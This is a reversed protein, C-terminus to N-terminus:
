LSIVYREDNSVCFISVANIATGILMIVLFYPQSARLIRHNRHYIVWILSCFACFITISMLTLGVIRLSPSLYNQEPVDRLLLPPNLSGDSYVFSPGYQTFHIKGDGNTEINSGFLHPGSLGQITETLVFAEEFSLDIPNTTQNSPPYLNYIGMTSSDPSRTQTQTGNSKMDGYEVTGTAGTFSIKRINELHDQGSIMMGDLTIADPVDQLNRRRRNEADYAHCAGLGISIIADYLFAAGEEPTFEQFFYSPAPPDTLGNYDPSLQTNHQYMQNLQKVFTEDNSKWAQLFPDDDGLVQYGEVPQILAAGRLLKTVNGYSGFGQQKLMEDPFQILNYIVSMDFTAQFIWLYDGNLMNEAEAADALLPLEVPFAEMSVVITRFGRQKVKKMILPIQRDLEPIELLPTIYGYIEYQEINFQDLVVSFAQGRQIGTDSLAHLYTIYNNRNINQLYRTVAEAIIVMDPFLTTTYPSITQLNLRANYQRYPNHPIQGAAAMISLHQAPMDHYGGVIACPISKREMVQQFLLNSSLHGITATDMFTTQNIDFQIPCYFSNSTSNSNNTNEEEELLLRSLQPVISGNRQNFHIMAMFAAASHSFGVSFVKTSTLLSTSVAPASISFYFPYCLYFFLLCVCCFTDCHHPQNTQTTKNENKM